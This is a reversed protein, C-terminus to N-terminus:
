SLLDVANRALAAIRPFDGQAIVDRPAVWSGGVAFVNPLALYDAANSMDIGGTPCFRIDPLPAAVSKLWAAGGCAEAPFFKLAKFGLASLALAESVTACGPLAPVQADALAAALLGTTGPTVLFRAGAKISAAIDTEERLTGAGVVADPVKAAIAKIAELAAPTRLTVEIAPLGGDCLARALPVAQEASDITLVPIVPVTALLLLPDAVAM